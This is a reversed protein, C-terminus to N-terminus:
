AKSITKKHAKQNEKNNNNNNNNKKKFWDHLQTTM